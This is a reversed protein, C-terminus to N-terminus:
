HDNAWKRIGHAHISSYDTCTAKGTPLKEKDDLFYPSHLSQIVVVMEPGAM